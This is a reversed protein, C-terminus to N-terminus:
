LENLLQNISKAKVKYKKLFETSQSLNDLVQKEKQSLKKKPTTKYVAQDENVVTFEVNHEDLFEKVTKELKKSHPKVILKM